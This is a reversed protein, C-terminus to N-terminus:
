TASSSSTGRRLEVKGYDEGNVRVGNASGLDIIKYSEGELVVKAHNRSISRHNVVIDNDETRGLVVEPKTIQFDLGALNSNLVVLRARASAGAAAGARPQFRRSQRVIATKAAQRPM